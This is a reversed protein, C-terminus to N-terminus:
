RSGYVGALFGGKAAANQIAADYSRVKRRFRQLAAAENARANSTTVALQLQATRGDLEDRTKPRGLKALTSQRWGQPKSMWGRRLAQWYSEQYQIFQVVEPKSQRFDSRLEAVEQALTVPPPALGWRSATFARSAMFAEIARRRIVVKRPRDELVIPAMRQLLLRRPDGPDLGFWVSTHLGARRDARLVPDKTGILASLKKLDACESPAIDAPRKLTERRLLAKEPAALPREALFEYLQWL